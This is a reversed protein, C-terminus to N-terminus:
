CQRFAVGHSCSEGDRRLECLDDADDINEYEKSESRGRRPMILDFPVNIWTSLKRWKSMFIQKFDKQSEKSPAYREPTSSPGSAKRGSKGPVPAENSEEYDDDIELGQRM